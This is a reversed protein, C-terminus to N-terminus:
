GSTLVGDCFLRFIDSTDVRRLLYDSKLDVMGWSGVTLVGVHRLLVFVSTLGWDVGRTWSSFDVTQRCYYPTYM